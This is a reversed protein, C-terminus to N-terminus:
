PVNYSDSEPECKIQTLNSETFHSFDIRQQLRLTENLKCKKWKFMFSYSLSYCTDTDASLLRSALSHFTASFHICYDVTIRIILTVCLLSHVFSQLKHRRVDTASSKGKQQWKHSSVNFRNAYELKASLLFFSSSCRKCNSIFTRDDVLNMEMLNTM